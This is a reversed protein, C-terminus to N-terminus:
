SLPDYGVQVWLGLREVPNKNLAEHIDGLIGGTAPIPKEFELRIKLMASGQVDPVNLLKNLPAAFGHYGQLDGQYELRTFQGNCQLTVSQEIQPKYRSLLAIATELRRYDQITDVSIELASVTKIKRDAVQDALGNFAKNPSGEQRIESPCIEPFITPATGGGGSGGGGNIQVTEVTEQQGETGYDAVVRFQTTETITLEADGSPLSGTEILQGAKYISVSIAEKARWRLRVTKEANSGPLVQANFEIVKPEPPKLIGRRYIELRESFEINPLVNGGSQSVLPAIFLQQGMKLDWQGENTGTKITDRLKSLEGELLMNLITNKAFAERMGKATWNDIGAPWVKQLIFAPAFPKAEDPRIKSCDKLVKLIVEQQNNNGKVTSSDQTPLTFHMLGKPAKVSDQSPYFLHRYTNTLAVRVALDLEWERNKLEKQQTESLEQLRNASQRLTKVAIYERALSIARELGQNNALLFLLRNKFVRFVGSEGTNDFIQEVINPATDTSAKITEENFDILCLVISEPRDDVSHAGEPDAVCDFFKRSFYSDRRKRLEEKAVGQGVQAKEEAIIKNISPEEKFQYITTIPDFDLHWGVSVLRELAKETFGIEINPTLLSLNLDSRRIGATIGQTLSHLFITRAVWSSFPPKGADRWEQDQIQAHAQTGTPNFIDGKIPLDMLPRQLRSTLDSTMERDIGIPLHHPHILPIHESDNNWLYRIVQAFLRLAGRTRQFDPISAIKQTLLKFLEPHFPYSNAIAERYSLEKCGDPLDTRSARYSDFYSEAAKEAAESSISAFMRQKVINYIEVDDSPRLIREQRASASSIEQLLEATEAAFTDASSALSYVFVLHNCSAACDMLSFLFAVVQKALDSNGIMKAKAARLYRAIEDLMILTPQGNTLNEIAASGPSVGSEDSGKLLKYGEIGRLQYAMEGWITKTTIGTEPHFIGEEPSLDRGDVAAVQISGNPLLGLVDSFREDESFLSRGQKAIHWLAIEDHTKGGGFSTELRIVPSGTSGGTLRGFVERILEQLGDTVFTNAFFQAPKQYLDPAKGEVVLRLKAAFLDFSLDGSVIESRPVCTNFVSSLM